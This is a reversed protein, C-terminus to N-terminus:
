KKIAAAADDVVGEAYVLTVGFATEATLDAVLILLRIDGALRLKGVVGFDEREKISVHNFDGEPRKVLSLGM